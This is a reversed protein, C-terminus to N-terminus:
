AVDDQSPAKLLRTLTEAQDTPSREGVRVGEFADPFVCFTGDNFRHAAGAPVLWADLLDNAAFDTVRWNEGDREEPNGVFAALGSSSQEVVDDVGGSRTRRCITQVFRALDDVPYSSGPQLRRLTAILAGLTSFVTERVTELTEDPFLEDRDGSTTRQGDSQDSRDNVVHALHVGWAPHLGLLIFLGAATTPPVLRRSFAEILMRRSAPDEPTSREGAEFEDRTADLIDSGAALAALRRWGGPPVFEEQRALERAVQRDLRWAGDLPLGDREDAARRLADLAGSPSTQPTPRELPTGAEILDVYRDMTEM